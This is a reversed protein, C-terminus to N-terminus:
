WDRPLAGVVVPSLALTLETTGLDQPAVEELWVSGNEAVRYVALREMAPVPAAVAVPPASPPMVPPPGPRFALWGALLLLSGTAAALRRQRRRRRVARIEPLIAAWVQAAPDPRSTM